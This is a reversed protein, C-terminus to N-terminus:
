RHLTYNRNQTHDSVQKANEWWAIGIWSAFDWLQNKDRANLNDQQQGGTQHCCGLIEKCLFISAARAPTAGQISYWGIFWLTDPKIGMWSMHVPNYALDGTPPMWSAVVKLDCVLTERGSKRGGEERELFFYIFNFYIYIYVQLTAKSIEQCFIEPHIQRVFM